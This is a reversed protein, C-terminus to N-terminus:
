IFVSANGQADLYLSPLSFVLYAALWWPIICAMLGRFGARWAFVLGAIFCITLATLGVRLPCTLAWFGAKAGEPRLFYGYTLGSRPVLMTFAQRQWLWVLLIVLVAGMFPLLTKTRRFITWNLWVASLSLAICWGVLVFPVTDWGYREGIVMTVQTAYLGPILPVITSLVIQATAPKDTTSM